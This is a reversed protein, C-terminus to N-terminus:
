LSSFAVAGGVVTLRASVQDDVAVLDARKGEEISGCEGEIRLLIAPNTSAMEAVEMESAGLNLMGRVADLMTIVSGAITGHRNQTRGKEVTITEGWIEYEGDGSGAAAIADSILTIRQPTKLKLLLRLIRPDLHIGDAILDFTVDDRSLGWGVPGPSRHHLQSMANMFHTMHRAGASFALDLVEVDARTHGISVVWGESRLQSILDVGGEVEPAVTIMKVGTEGSPVRLVELDLPSSYTRFHNAHLAGCQLSNVFPGEYHLGLIRAAPKLGGSAQLEIAAGINKAVKAYDRIAAPVLTPLWGTVGQQALFRSVKDLDAASATMTDVEKAGHIHVDIFGPYVTLGSVNIRSQAPSQYALGASHIVSSIRGQEILIAANDLVGDPLVVRANHVLLSDEKSASTM